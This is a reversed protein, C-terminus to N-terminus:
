GGQDGQAGLVLDAQVYAGGAAVAQGRGLDALDDQVGRHVGADGAGISRQVDGLLGESLLLRRARGFREGSGRIGVAQAGIILLGIRDSAFPIPRKIMAAPEGSRNLGRATFLDSGPSDLRGGVRTRQEVGEHLAACM